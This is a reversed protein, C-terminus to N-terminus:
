RWVVGSIFFFLRQGPLQMVFAMAHALDGRRHVDATGRRVSNHLASLITINM